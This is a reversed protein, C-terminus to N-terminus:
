RFLSWLAWAAPLSPSKVSSHPVQPHRPAPPHPQSPFSSLPPAAGEGKKMAKDILGELEKAQNNQPETQLLGRM